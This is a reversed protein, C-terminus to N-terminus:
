ADVVLYDFRNNTMERIEELYNSNMVYVTAGQPLKENAESPSSVLLGSIPLFKGHKRPNVDVVLDIANGVRRNIVSFIVGKSVGGM